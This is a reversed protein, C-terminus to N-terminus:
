AERFSGKVVSDDEEDSPGKDEEKITKRHENVVWRPCLATFPYTMIFPIAFPSILLDDLPGPILDPLVGYLVVATFSGGVYALKLFGGVRRDRFCKWFLRAQIVQRELFGPEQILRTPIQQDTM